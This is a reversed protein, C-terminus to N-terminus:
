SGISLIKTRNWGRMVRTVSSFRKYCDKIDEDKERFKMMYKYGFKLEEEKGWYDIKAAEYFEKLVKIISSEHSEGDGSPQSPPLQLDSNM